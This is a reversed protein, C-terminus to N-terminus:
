HLAMDQTLKRLAERPQGSKMLATGVLVAGFGLDRVRVLEAPKSLGSAAIWFENDLPPYKKIIEAPRDLDVKLTKLDRSNVQIIEAGAQRALKLEDPEFIEVVARLGFSSALFILEKLLGAEPTLRVILLVASAM